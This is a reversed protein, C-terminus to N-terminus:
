EVADLDYYVNSDCKTCVFGTGDEFSWGYDYTPGDDCYCKTAHVRDTM